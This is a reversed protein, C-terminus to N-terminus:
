GLLFESLYAFVVTLASMLWNYRLELFLLLYLMIFAFSIRNSLFEFLYRSMMEGAM